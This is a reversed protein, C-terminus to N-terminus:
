SPSNVSGSVSPETDSGVPTLRIVKKLRRWLSKALSMEELELLKSSLEASITRQIRLKEEAQNLARRLLEKESPTRARHDPQLQDARNRKCNCTVCASVCNDFGTSGGRWRPIVHDVTAKNRVPNICLLTPRKCWHCRGGAQHWLRERFRLQSLTLPGIFSENM